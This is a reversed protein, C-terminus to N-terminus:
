NTAALSRRSLETRFSVLTEPIKKKLSSRIIAQPALRGPDLFLSYILLTEDAGNGPYLWWAGDMGRFQGELLDFAIKELPTSNITVKYTFPSRIGKVKMAQEVVMSQGSISLVRAKVMDGCYSPAKEPDSLLAWAEARSKKVLIAGSVYKGGQTFPCNEGALLIPSGEKLERWQAESLVPREQAPATSCVLAALAFFVLHCSQMGGLTSLM